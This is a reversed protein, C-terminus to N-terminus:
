KEWIVFLNQEFLTRRAEALLTWLFKPHRDPPRFTNFLSQISVSHNLTLNM